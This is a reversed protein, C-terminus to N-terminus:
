LFSNSKGVVCMKMWICIKKLKSPAKDRHTDKLRIYNIVRSDNTELAKLYM